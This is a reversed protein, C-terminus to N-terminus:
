GARLRRHPDRAHVALAWSLLRGPMARIAAERLLIKGRSRTTTMAAIRPGARIVRRTRASRVREYLRLATSPDRDPRLVLGLAVADELALAAGQATYPLVPHAADGLLSVCGSGWGDLPARVFLRDHRLDEPKTARIVESLRADVRAATRALIELPRGEVGRVDEDLLSFYWYVATESARAAGAELGDGLYVVATADGLLHATAQSVGRLAHYGSPRPAAELPHLARRVISGVGDAGIAVDGHASSGDELTLSAASGKDSIGTVRSALRLADLGAADLLADHLASRLLFVSRRGHSESTFRIRKLLSGDARRVDFIEIEVGDRRVREGAGLEDLAALANPALALAFGLERPSAAQEIVQVQWGVRRLSIAAALGGIGAGVVVASRM